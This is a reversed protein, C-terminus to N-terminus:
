ENIKSYIPQVKVANDILSISSFKQKFSSSIIFDLRCMKYQILGIDGLCTVM